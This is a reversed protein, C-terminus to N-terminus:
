THVARAEQWPRAIAALGPKGGDCHKGSQQLECGGTACHQSTMRLGYQHGDCHQSTARLGCQGAGCRKPVSRPPSLQARRWASVSRFPPIHARRRARVSRHPYVHAELQSKACIVRTGSRTLVREGFNKGVFKFNPSARARHNGYILGQAQPSLATPLAGGQWPPPRPNSGRLGSWTLVSAPKGAEKMHRLPWTTLCPGAFGEGGTRIRAEGGPISPVGEPTSKEQRAVRQAVM